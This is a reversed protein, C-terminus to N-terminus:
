EDIECSSSKNSGVGLSNMEIGRTKEIFSVENQTIVFVIGFRQGDCVFALGHRSQTLSNKYFLIRVDGVVVKPRLEMKERKFYIEEDMGIVSKSSFIEALKRFFFLDDLVLDAKTSSLCQLLKRQLDANRKLQTRYGPILDKNLYSMMNKDNLKVTNLSQMYLQSLAGKEALCDIITIKAEDSVEGNDILEKALKILEYESDLTGLGHLATICFRVLTSEPRARILNAMRKVGYHPSDILLDNFGPSNFATTNKEKLAAEIWEEVTDYATASAVSFISAFCIHIVVKLRM